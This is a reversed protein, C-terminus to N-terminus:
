RSKSVIKYVMQTAHARTASGMPYFNGDEYGNIIGCGALLHISEKAYEGFEDDDAFYMQKDGIEFGCERAFRYIIVAMDQRTINMDPKFCSGDGLILGREQATCLAPYYWSTSEIDDFTCEKGGDLSFVRCLMQVLEARTLFNDPRFCNQYGQVIGEWHMFNIAEFAWHEESVDEFVIKTKNETEETGEPEEAKPIYPVGSQVPSKRGSSGGGGGSHGGASASNKLSLLRETEKELATLSLFKKGATNQEIFEKDIQNADDYATIEAAALYEAAHSWMTCSELGGLIVAEKFSDNINSFDLQQAAIREAVAKKGANDMGEYLVRCDIETGFKEIEALIVDLSEIDKKQKLSAVAAALTLLEEPHKEDNMTERFYYLAEGILSNDMGDETTLEYLKVADTGAFAEKLEEMTGSSVAQEIRRRDSEAMFYIEVESPNTEDEAIVSIRFTGNRNPRILASFGTEYDSDLIRVDYIEGTVADQLVLTIKKNSAWGEVKLLDGDTELYDVRFEAAYAMTGFLFISAMIVLLRKIM